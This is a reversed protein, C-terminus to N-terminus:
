KQYFLDMLNVFTLDIENAAFQILFWNMANQMNHEFSEVLVLLPFRMIGWLALFINDNEDSICPFHLASCFNSFSM